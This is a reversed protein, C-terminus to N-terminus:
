SPELTQLTSVIFHSCTCLYPHLVVGAYAVSFTYLLHVFIRCMTPWDIIWFWFSWIKRQLVCTYLSVFGLAWERKMAMFLQLVQFLAVYRRIDEAASVVDPGAEAASRGARRQRLLRGPVAGHHLGSDPSFLLPFFPILVLYSFSESHM